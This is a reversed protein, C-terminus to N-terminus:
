SERELMWVGDVSFIHVRCHAYKFLRGTGEPSPSITEEFDFGVKMNLTYRDVEAM